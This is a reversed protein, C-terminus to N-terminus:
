PKEKKQPTLQHKSGSVSTILLDPRIFHEAFANIEALTVRNILGERKQLYDPTRGQVQYTHLVSAIDSSSTFQLPFSGILYNKARELDAQTIGKKLREFQGKTVTIAEDATKGDSQLSASLTASHAMVHLGANAGYALGRKERVEQMLYSEFGGGLAYSLLVLKIYDPHDYRLGPHSFLVVSQPQTSLTFLDQGKAPFSVDEVKKYSGKEPLDKTLTDVLQLVAEPTLDGCIGIKLDDKAMHDKMFHKVDRSNLPRLEEVSRIGAAYPHGKPYLATGLADAAKWDPTQLINETSQILAAKVREFADEDFRPQTLVLHLLKTAESLQTLPTRMLITLRDDDSGASITIGLTQLREHFAKTDLDGAGELLIDPLMSAVAVKEAPAEASGARFSMVLSLVPVSHDEAFWFTIGSGSTLAAVSVQAASPTSWACCAMVMATLFKKFTM